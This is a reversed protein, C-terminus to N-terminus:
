IICGLLSPLLSPEEGQLNCVSDVVGQVSHLLSAGRKHGKVGAAQEVHALQGPATDLGLGACILCRIRSSPVLDQRSSLM